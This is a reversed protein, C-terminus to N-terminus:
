LPPTDPTKGVNGKKNVSEASPLTTPIKKGTIVEYNQALKTKVNADPCTNILSALQSQKIIKNRFVERIYEMDKERGAALKAYVIDVPALFTAKIGPADDYTKEVARKKWNPHLTASEQAVGHAYYGFTNHFASREGLSGDILNSLDPDLPTCFDAENSIRLSKPADPKGGL